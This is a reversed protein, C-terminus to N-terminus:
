EPEAKGPVFRLLRTSENWGIDKMMYYANTAPYTYNTPEFLWLVGEVKEEEVNIISIGCGKKRDYGDSMVYFYGAKTVGLGM